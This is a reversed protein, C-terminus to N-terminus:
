RLVLGILAGKGSGLATRIGFEQRRLSISYARAGHVGLLALFSTVAGFRSVM